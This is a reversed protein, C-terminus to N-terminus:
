GKSWLDKGTIGKVHKKIRGGTKSVIKKLFSVHALIWEKSLQQELRGRHAIQGRIEVLKDIKNRAEKPEFSESKWAETIKTIGITRQIFDDTQASKPTNFSRNRSEEYKKLRKKLYDKWGDDALQWMELENKEDKIEKAIQKKLEKPLDDSHKLNEIIFALAESSIAEIYAEWHSVMLVVASRYLVDIEDDSCQGDDQDLTRLGDGLDVLAEIDSFNEDFQKRSRSTM